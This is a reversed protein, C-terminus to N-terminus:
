WLSLTRLIRLIDAYKTIAFLGSQRPRIFFSYKAESRATCIWFFHLVFPEARSVFYLIVLLWAAISREIGTFFNSLLHASGVHCFVIGCGQGLVASLDDDCHVKAQGM